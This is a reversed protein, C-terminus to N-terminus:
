DSDLKLRSVEGPTLHQKFYKGVINGERDFAYTTNRLGGEAASRANVFLLAHCRRATEAAKELLRANYRSSSAESQEKLKALCPCDCSEPMVIMDMTDDCQDMLALQKEFLEDSREYDVSYEPQIICVKM